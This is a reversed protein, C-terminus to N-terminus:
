QGAHSNFARRNEATDFLMFVDQLCADIHRGSAHEHHLRNNYTDEYNETASVARDLRMDEADNERDFYVVGDIITKENISYISLPHGSWISLDAQKGTEVSGVYEDIGLQVAPNMTIMRIAEDPTTQGYRMTKAAELNLHRIYDNSDSNISTVVGNENLITANYATSYYVEFKYAWWDAFVSAHAGYEALEPAVKFAENAHQFTFGSMGYEHFVRALMLIEDARYSHAHVIIDGNLIDALVELRLNRAVPVPPNGSGNREYAEKARLYEERNKQYDLAADFHERVVMEIGMRTSPHIGAGEGHVRKPNEGLAFKVTQPADEFFMENQSLGYRLKLTANRGGIVNASGHMLNISTVGGALARYISISNPNISEYMTVEPTVPNTAENIGIGNLHSHADIIGPMVYKGEADIEETGGPASLDEGIQTIIGDEVLIDTEELDEGTVTIVTANRIILSGEPQALVASVFGSILFLLGFAYVPLLNGAITKLNQLCYTKGCSGTTGTAPAASQKMNEKRDVNVNVMEFNM